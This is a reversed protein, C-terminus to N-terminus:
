RPTATLFEPTKEGRHKGGKLADSLTQGAYLPNYRHRWSESHVFDLLAQHMVGHRQRNDRPLTMGRQTSCVKGQHSGTCGGQLCSQNPRGHHNDILHMRDCGPQCSPHETDGINSQHIDHSASRHHRFEELFRQTGLGERGQGQVTQFMRLDRLM